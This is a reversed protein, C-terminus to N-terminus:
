RTPAPVAEWAAGAGNSRDSRVGARLEDDVNDAGHM